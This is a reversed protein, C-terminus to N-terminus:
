VRIPQQFVMWNARANFDMRRAQSLIMGLINVVAMMLCFVLEAYPRANTQYITNISFFDYSALSALAWTAAWLFLQTYQPAVAAEGDPVKRIAHVTLGAVFLTPLLVFVVSAWPPVVTFMAVILIALVANCLQIAIIASRDGRGRVYFSGKICFCPLACCLLTVAGALAIAIISFITLGGGLGHGCQDEGGETWVHYLALRTTNKGVLTVVQRQGPKSISYGAGCQPMGQIEGTFLNTTHNQSDNFRRRTDSAFYALKQSWSPLVTGPFVDTISEFPQREYGSKKFLDATVEEGWVLVPRPNYAGGPRQKPTVFTFTITQGKTINFTCVEKPFLPASLDCAPSLFPDGPPLYAAGFCPSFTFLAALLMLFM